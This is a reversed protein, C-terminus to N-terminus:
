GDALTMAKVRTAHVKVDISHAIKHHSACLPALYYPNHNKAMSYRNTHHIEQAKNSCNTMACTDGFEKQLLRKTAVPIHRSSKEQSEAQSALHMKEEAIEQERKELFGHILANIDIGRNQLELLKETVAPSLNLTQPLQSKDDLGHARVSEEVSVREQLIAYKEDRVLTELAKQPLLKVQNAWFEQNGSTAVKTIRALKHISAEGNELLSKLIPKDEFKKELHLVRRVQDESMGAIKKAFEFISGFGKKEYLRRRQVEPLLGAFKQRWMRAQEGYRQCLQFLKKDTYHSPESLSVQSIRM